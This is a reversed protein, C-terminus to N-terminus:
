VKLGFLWQLAASYSCKIINRCRSIHRLEHDSCGIVQYSTKCISASIVIPSGQATTWVAEQSCSHFSRRQVGGSINQAGNYPPMSVGKSRPKPLRLSLLQVTPLLHGHFRNLPSVDERQHTTTTLLPTALETDDEDSSWPEFHHQGDGSAKSN